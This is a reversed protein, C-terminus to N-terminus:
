RTSAVLDAWACSAFADDEAPEREGINRIRRYEPDLKDLTAYTTYETPAFAFVFVACLM